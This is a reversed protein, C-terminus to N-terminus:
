GIRTAIFRSKNRVSGTFTGSTRITCIMLSSAESCLVRLKYTTSSSINVVAAVYFRHSFDKSSPLEVEMLSADLETNASDTLQVHGYAPGTARGAAGSMRMQGAAELKWVGPTLTITQACDVPTNAVTTAVSSTIDVNITEGIYGAPVATGDGSSQLLAKQTM